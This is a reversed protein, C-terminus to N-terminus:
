GSPTALMDDIFRAWVADPQWLDRQLAFAEDHPVGRCRHLWLGVFVSVRKNAACHVWIRRGRNADMVACFAQLDRPQPADFAVPIHVYDMGLAHVVGAEDVLAYEADHLGLNIILTYGAVAIAALEDADPQGSTAIDPALVRLNYIGALAANHAAETM